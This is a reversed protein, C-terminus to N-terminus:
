AESDPPFRIRRHLRHLPDEAGLRSWAPAQCIDANQSFPLTPVSRLCGQCTGEPVRRLLSGHEPAMLPAVAGGPGAEM